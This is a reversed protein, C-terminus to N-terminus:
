AAGRMRRSKVAGWARYAYRHVVSSVRALALSGATARDGLRLSQRVSSWRIRPRCFAYVQSRLQTPSTERAAKFLLQQLVNARLREIRSSSSEGFLDQLTPTVVNICSVLDWIDERLSGTYSGPHITYNYLGRSVLAVRSAAAIVRFSYVLDGYGNGEVAEVEHPPRKFLMHQSYPIRGALILDIAQDPRVTTDDADWPAPRIKGEVDAFNLATVVVESETSQATRLLTELCDPVITDDSDVFILWDAGAEAVARNTVASYGRNEPFSIIRIREDAPIRDVTADTSGDDVVLIEINSLTQAAVSEVTRRVTDASNFCPIVVTVSPRSNM